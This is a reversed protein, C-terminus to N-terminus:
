LGVMARARAMADQEARMAALDRELSEFLPILIPGDVEVLRACFVLARELREITLPEHTTVKTSRVVRPKGTSGRNARARRQALHMAELETWDDLDHQEGADFLAEHYARHFEATTPDSPL